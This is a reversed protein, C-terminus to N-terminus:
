RKKLQKIKDNIAKEDAGLEIAIKYLNLARKSNGLTSEIEALHTHYVHATEHNPTLLSMARELLKKANIYEGQKYLIWAYTDLYIPNEPESEVTYKSMEAAKELDKNQEALLYSLNNLVPLNYPDIKIYADYYREADDLNELEYNLFGLNLYFLRTLNAQYQNEAASLETELGKEFLSIGDQYLKLNVAIAGKYFYYFGQDLNEQEHFLNLVTELKEYKELSILLEIYYIYAELNGPNLAIAKKFWQISKTQAVNLESNSELHYMEEALLVSQAKLLAASSTIHEDKIAIELLEEILQTNNDDSKLNSEMLAYIPLIREEETYSLDVIFAKSFSEVFSKQNLQYLKALNWKFFEEQIPRENLHEKYTKVLNVTDKFNEYIYTKIEKFLYYDKEKGEVGQHATILKNIEKVATEKQKLEVYLTVKQIALETMNDEPLDKSQLLNIIELGKEFDEASVYYKLATSYSNIEEQADAKAYKEFFQAAEQNRELRALVEGKMALLYHKEPFAIIAKNLYKLANQPNDTIVELIAFEEFVDTYNSDIDLIEQFLQYADEYKELSFAIQGQTYLSDLTKSRTNSQANISSSMFLFLTTVILALYHQIKSM